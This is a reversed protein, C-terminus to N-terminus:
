LLAVQWNMRLLVVFMAGLTVASSILPLIGGLTLSEVCYSDNEIHYITEGPGRKLHYRLSLSQLHGFLQRRLDFVLRQAISQQMQTHAVSIFESAYHLVLYAVCGLALMAVRNAGLFGIVDAVMGSAPESGLAHDVIFKMPWPLLLGSIIEVVSVFLFISLPSRYPRLYTLAWRYVGKPKEQKM